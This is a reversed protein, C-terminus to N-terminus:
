RIEMAKQQITLTIMQLTVMEMTQEMKETITIRTATETLSILASASTTTKLTV